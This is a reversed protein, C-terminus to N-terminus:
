ETPRLDARLAADTALTAANYLFLVENLGEAEMLVELEGTYYRPDVVVIKRYDRPLFPILCNAYSDKLVLLARRNDVATEIKIEAHNGNLFVAYQDRTDLCEARYPSASREGEGVYTVVMQQADGPPLYAYLADRENVRFGSLASLTGRFDGSLLRKELGAADGSLGAADSLARYALYAGDTTWHHDTRYYLQTDAKAALFAPRLDILRAPSAALDGLLRDLYAKEGDAPALSPLKDALVESATPAIMVYQSLDGHRSLFDRLAALTAAYDEESPATFGQILYGDRGLYVGGSETKGSLRDLTSQLAIWADRLPFQDCIYDDFRREYRGSLADSLTLRPRTQLNRNETPSFARDRVLVFAVCLLAALAATVLAVGRLFFLRKKKM